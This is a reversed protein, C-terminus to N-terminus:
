AAIRETMALLEKIQAPTFINHAQFSRAVVAPYDPIAELELIHRLFGLFSTVKIGYAKLINASFLEIEGGLIVKSLQSPEASALGKSM